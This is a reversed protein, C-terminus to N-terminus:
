EVHARIAPIYHGTRSDSVVSISQNDRRMPPDDFQNAVLVFHTAFKGTVQVAGRYSERMPSIARNLHGRARLPEGAAVNVEETSTEAVAHSKGTHFVTKVPPVPM